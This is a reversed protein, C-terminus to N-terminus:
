QPRRQRPRAMRTAQHIGCPQTLAPRESRVSTLPGFFNFRGACPAPEREDDARSSSWLGLWAFSIRHFGVHVLFGLDPSKDMASDHLGPQDVHSVPLASFELISDPVAVPPMARRAASDQLFACISFVCKPRVMVSLISSAVVICPAVVLMVTRLMRPRRARM